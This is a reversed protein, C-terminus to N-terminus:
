SKRHLPNLVYDFLHKSKAQVALFFNSSWGREGDISQGRREFEGNQAFADSLPHEVITTGPPIDDYLQDKGVIKSKTKM